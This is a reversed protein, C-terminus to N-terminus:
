DHQDGTTTSPNAQTQQWWGGGLAYYLAATDVFRQGEAKLWALQTQNYGREASLVDLYSVAGAQYQKQILDMSDRSADRALKQANVANGDMEIANLVDVVQHFANLVVAQYHAHSAELQARAAHSLARLAKGHFLPAFLSGGAGWIASPSHFLDGTTNAASGLSATLTIDPFLHAKAEGVQATAAHLQAEAALIDPRQRVLESPLTLPLDRPLTLNQLSLVPLRFNDPNAGVLAAIATRLLAQQHLMDPLKAQSQALEARARLVDAQNISGLKQQKSLLQEQESEAQIIANLAAIQDNITAYHIVSAVLNNILALSGAEFLAQQRALEAKAAETKRRSAGFLDLDYSLQLQPSYFNFLNNFLPNSIGIQAGNARQRRATGVLDLEPLNSGSAAELQFRAMKLRAQSSALDPNDHLAQAILQDLLPSGLLTFWDKRISLSSSFHQKQGNQESTNTSNGQATPKSSGLSYHGAVKSAPSHFDPGLACATLLLATGALTGTWFYKLRNTSLNLMFTRLM